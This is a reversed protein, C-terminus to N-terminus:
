FGNAKLMDSIEEAIPLYDPYTREVARSIHATFAQDWESEPRLVGLATMIHRRALTKAIAEIKNM